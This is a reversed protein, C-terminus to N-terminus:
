KKDSVKMFGKYYDEKDINIENKLMKIVAESVDEMLNWNLSM